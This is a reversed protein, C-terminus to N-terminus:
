KNGETGPAGAEEATDPWAGADEKTGPWDGHANENGCGGLAKGNEKADLIDSKGAINIENLFKKAKTNLPETHGKTVRSAPTFGAVDEPAARGVKQLQAFTWTEDFKEEHAMMCSATSLTEVKDLLDSTCEVGMFEAIRPLQSRISKQLDEFVVILVNPLNRCKWFELYYEWISAGFLMNEAFVNKDFVIESPSSHTKVASHGKEQLFKFWSIVTKEPDRMTVIYKAGTNIASLRQHTKFVRPNAVHEAELDMGLDWALEAWPSVQYVDEFEMHGGTRLQHCIQQLWTTGTKPATLIYVDTKRPQFKAAHAVSGESCGGCVLLNRKGIIDTISTLNEEVEYKRKGDFKSKSKM